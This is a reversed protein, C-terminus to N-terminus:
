VFFCLMRPLMKLSSLQRRVMAAACSRASRSCRKEYGALAASKATSSGAAVATQSSAGQFFLIYIAVIALVAITVWLGIRKTDMKTKEKTM